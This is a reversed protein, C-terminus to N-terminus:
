FHFSGPWGAGVEKRSLSFEVGENMLKVVVARMLSESHLEGGVDILGRSGIAADSFEGKREVVPCNQNGTASPDADEFLFNIEASRERTLSHADFFDVLTNPKDAKDVVIETVDIQLFLGQL